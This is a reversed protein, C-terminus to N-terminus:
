FHFPAPGEPFLALWRNTNFSVLTFKFEVTPGLGNTNPAPPLHLTVSDGAAFAVALPDSCHLGSLTLGDVNTTVTDALIVGNAALRIPAVLVGDAFVDFGQNGSALATYAPVARALDVVGSFLALCWLVALLTKFCGRPNLVRGHIVFTPAAPGTNM